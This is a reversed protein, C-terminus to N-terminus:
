EKKKAPPRGGEGFLSGKMGLKKLIDEAAAISEMEQESSLLRCVAPLSLYQSLM